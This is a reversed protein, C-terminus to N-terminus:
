RSVKRCRPLNWVLFMWTKKSKREIEFAKDYLRAGVAGSGIMFGTLRDHQMYVQSKHAKTVRYLLLEMNWADVPFLLDVCLDARSPMFLLEKAGAGRLLFSLAAVCEQVGIRWLAESRIEAMVSPRSQPELWNGIKLAFENSVVLWEYGESGHAKVAFRWKGLGKEAEIEGPWDQSNTQAKTKLEALYSFFTEDKWTVDIALVLSDIGSGLVNFPTPPDANVNDPPSITTLGGTESGPIPPASAGARAGGSPAAAGSAGEPSTTPSPSHPGQEAM